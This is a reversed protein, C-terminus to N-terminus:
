LFDKFRDKTLRYYKWNSLNKAHNKEYFDIGIKNWDLVHWEIRGCNKEKAKKVCFNFLKQGIGKKRHEKLVFIDELYLTPLALFSSYNMFYIIYGVYNDDLRALYAEYKPNEYLGDVRLRHKAQRNPPDLKEYAALKDILDLFNNFNEHNIKEIKIEKVM